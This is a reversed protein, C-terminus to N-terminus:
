VGKLYSIDGAYELFLQDFADGTFYYYGVAYPKEGAKVFEIHRTGFYETDGNKYCVRVIYQGYNGPPTPRARKTELGCLADMFESIEKSELTRILQFEMFPKTADDIWPYYLLDVSHIPENRHEFRYSKPHVSCGSSIILLLFIAVLKRM